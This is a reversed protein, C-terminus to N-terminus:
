EKGLIRQKKRRWSKLFSLSTSIFFCLSLSLSSFFPFLTYSLSLSILRIQKWEHHRMPLRDINSYKSENSTCVCWIDDYSLIRAWFLCLILLIHCNEYFFVGMSSWLSPKYVSFIMNRSFMFFFINQINEM